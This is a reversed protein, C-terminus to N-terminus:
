KSPTVHAEAEIHMATPALIVAEPSKSVRASSHFPREHRGSTV